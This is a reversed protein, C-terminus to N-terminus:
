GTWRYDGLPCNRWGRGNIDLPEGDYPCVEPPKQVEARANDRNTRQIDVLQEWSV